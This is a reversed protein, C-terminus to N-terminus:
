IQVEYRCRRNKNQKIKTEKLELSIGRQRMVRGGGFTRSMNKLVMTWNHDTEAGEQVLGIVDLM